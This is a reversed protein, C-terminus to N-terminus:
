RAINYYNYVARSLDAILKSAPEWILQQPHYLFVVLVYNGGPTYVIGADGITNIIGNVSVWGHKHAVRTGDPVGAEILVGIKNNALYEIMQRCEEQTIEGPFVALL